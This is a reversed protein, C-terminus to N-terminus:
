NGLLNCDLFKFLLFCEATFSVVAICHLKTENASLNITLTIYLFCVFFYVNELMDLGLMILMEKVELSTMKGFSTSLHGELAPLQYTLVIESM